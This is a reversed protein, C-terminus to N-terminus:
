YNPKNSENLTNLLKVYQLDKATIKNVPIGLYASADNVEKNTINGGKNYPDQMVKQKALGNYLDQVAQEAGHKVGVNYLQEKAAQQQAQQDVALVHGGVQALRNVEAQHQARLQDLKAAKNKIGEQHSAYDMIDTIMKDEM